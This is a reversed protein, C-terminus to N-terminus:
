RAFNGSSSCTRAKDKTSFRKHSQNLVKLSHRVIIQSSQSALQELCLKNLTSKSLSIFTRVLPLEFM